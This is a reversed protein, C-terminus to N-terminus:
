RGMNKKMQEAMERLQEPTMGQIAQPDLGGPLGGMGNMRVQGPAMGTPCAGVHSATIKMKAERMGHQPPDFTILNDVTYSRSFDGTARAKLHAKGEPVTCDAEFEVGGSIRRMVTQTCQMRDDGNMAQRQLEADTRADVCQQSKMGGGPMGAMQMSMEWLGPKRAPLDDAMAGTGILSLLLMSLCTKKSM